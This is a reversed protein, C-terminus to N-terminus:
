DASVGGVHKDLFATVHQLAGRDYLDMHAGGDFRVFQKPENAARFLSVGLEYPVVRDETGHMILLPQRVRDIRSLSEFRHKVLLSVPIWPYRGAAVDVISTFPADLIVAAAEHETALKVAVASGMSEGYLVLRDPAVGNEMLWAYAARGDTYLGEETPEGPNGGFGRYDVLLCGIGASHYLSLRGARDILSGANGHTYLLVPATGSSPPLYWARLDLGDTTRLTVDRVDPLGAEALVSPTTDPRFILKRQGFYMASVIALYGIAVVVALSIVSQM